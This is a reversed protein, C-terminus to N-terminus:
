LAVNAVSGILVSVINTGNVTCFNNQDLCATIDNTISSYYVTEINLM